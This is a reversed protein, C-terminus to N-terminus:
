RGLPRVTVSIRGRPRIAKAKPNRYESLDLRSPGTDVSTTFLRTGSGLVLPFVPLHYRDVLGAAALSQVLTASCHVIIPAGEGEKLCAM